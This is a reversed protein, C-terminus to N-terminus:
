DLSTHRQTQRILAQLATSIEIPLSVPQTLRRTAAPLSAVSTRTREAIVALPEPFSVPQGQQMVLQLLPQEGQPPEGVLGLRDKQFQNASQSRFIQKRGPYTQKGSSAKAVPIGDVEVLKYVGNIPSGSVLRTGIGYGDICAGASRLRDIELEDIDGSVLISVNPLLSRIKQSLIVLDGSDIRISGLQMEGGQVKKALQYAATLPDYTDILLTAQPFYRHFAQFAEMESGSTASWAMVFSHAMTGSPTQGLKLAALVNSTSDMGAALAARAAWVSAQPSFARRTGFELLKAQPGAVDRLR